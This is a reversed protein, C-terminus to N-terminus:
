PERRALVALSRTRLCISRSNAQDFFEIKGAIEQDNPIDNAKAAFVINQHLAAAGRGIARHAIRQANGGHIGDAHVQKELSKKGFLAAFPGIDIEIQGASILAFAGNLVDVFAVSFQARGHGGVHDGIAPTRRRAFDAFSQGELRFREIAQGAQHAGPFIFICVVREGALKVIGAEIRSMRQDAFKEIEAQHDLIQRPM